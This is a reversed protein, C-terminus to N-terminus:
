VIGTVTVTLIAVSFFVAVAVMSRKSLRALGCVGHGSTCGNGLKTGFGILLGAAAIWIPPSINWGPPPAVLTAATGGPGGVGLGPILWAAGASGAVLALLFVLRWLVTRAPPLLQGFIGSIGAIRGLGLWLVASALGILMGGLLAPLPAFNAM